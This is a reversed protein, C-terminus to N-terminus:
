LFCFSQLCLFHTLCIHRSSSMAFPRPPCFIDPPPSPRSIMLEIETATLVESSSTTCTVARKTEAEGNIFCRYHIEAKMSFAELKKSYLVKMYIQLCALM